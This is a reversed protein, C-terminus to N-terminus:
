LISLLQILKIGIGLFIFFFIVTKLGLIILLQIGSFTLKKAVLPIYVCSRSFNSSLNSKGISFFNM